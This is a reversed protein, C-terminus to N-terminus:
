IMNEVAVQLTMDKVIIKRGGKERGREIEVGM